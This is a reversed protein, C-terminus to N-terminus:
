KNAKQSVTQLNASSGVASYKERTAWHTCRWLKAAWAGGALASACDRCGLAPSEGQDMRGRDILGKDTSWTHHATILGRVSECVCWHCLWCPFRRSRMAQLIGIM